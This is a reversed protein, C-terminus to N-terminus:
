GEGRITVVVCGVIFRELPEEPSLDLVQVDSRDETPLLLLSDRKALVRSLIVRRDFRVAHVRDATLERPRSDLVVWDGPRFLDQVRAIADDGLRYAFPRLPDERGLVRPDLRLVDVILEPPIPGEGPDACEALVPVEVLDTDSRPQSCAVVARAPAEDELDQGSSLRRRLAPSSFYARARHLRAWAGELDEIRGSQAWARYLEPDDNLVRAIAEAVEDSPIKVGKEILSIYAPSVRAREALVQGAIGLTLRRQRIREHLPIGGNEYPKRRPSRPAGSDTPAM